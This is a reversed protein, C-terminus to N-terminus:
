AIGAVRLGEVFPQMAAKSRHPQLRTMEEANEGPYMEKLRRGYDRAESRNGLQGHCAALLRLVSEDSDLKACLDVAAGYEARSFAVSAGAWWYHDPPMPNLDLARNFTAWAEDPDGVFGMADSHDLMIDACNPHRQQAQQFCSESEDFDHQYLAVMAKRWYGSSSAPGLDIALDALERAEALLRPDRGGLLLWELYLSWSAGSYAEAFRGDIAIAERYFNRARRVSRLDCTKLANQGGLFKIFSASHSTRDYNTLVDAEVAGSLEAAIRAVLVRSSNLLGDALLQFEGSWAIEGSRNNALRVVLTGLGSGQRITSAVAYDVRLM